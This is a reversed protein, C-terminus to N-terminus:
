GIIVSRARQFSLRKILFRGGTCTVYIFLLFISRYIAPEVYGPGHSLGEVSRAVNAYGLKAKFPKLRGKEQDKPLANEDRFDIALTLIVFELNNGFSFKKM